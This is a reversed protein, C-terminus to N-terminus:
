ASKQLPLYIYFYLPCPNPTLVLPRLTCLNTQPKMRNGQPLPPSLWAGKPARKPRLLNKLRRSPSAHKSTRTTQMNRWPTQNHRFRGTGANCDQGHLLDRGCTPHLQLTQAADKLRGFYLRVSLTKQQTM